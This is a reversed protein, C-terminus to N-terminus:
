PPLETRCPFSNRSHWSPHPESFVEPSSDTLLCNELEADRTEPEARRSFLLIKTAKVVVQVFQVSRLSPIAPVSQNTLILSSSAAVGPRKRLKVPAGAAIRRARNIAM